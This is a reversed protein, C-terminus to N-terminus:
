LLLPESNLAHHMRIGLACVLSVEIVELDIPWFIRQDFLRSGLQVRDNCLLGM